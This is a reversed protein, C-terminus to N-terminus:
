SLNPTRQLLIPFPETGHRTYGATPVTGEATQKVEIACNTGDLKEICKVNPNEFVWEFGDVIEDYVVYEGDENEDREFPSKVKPFRLPIESM